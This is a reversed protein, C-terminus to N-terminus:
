VQFWSPILMWNIKEEKKKILECRVEGNLFNQLTGHTNLATILFIWWESLKLEKCRVKFIEMFYFSFINGRRCGSSLSLLLDRGSITFTAIVEAVKLLVRFTVQLLYQGIETKVGNHLYSSRLNKNLYYYFFYKDTSYLLKCVAILGVWATEYECIGPNHYLPQFGDM